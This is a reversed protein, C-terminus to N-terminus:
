GQAPPILIRAGVDATLEEPCMVVNADAIRWFREPDRYALAALHDTREGRVVVHALSASTAPIFRILKYRVVLGDPRTFSAEAVHEYRSGRFFM